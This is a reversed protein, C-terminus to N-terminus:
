SPLKPTNQSPMPWPLLQMAMAVFTKYSSTQSNLASSLVGHITQLYQANM